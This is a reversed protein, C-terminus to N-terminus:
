VEMVGNCEPCKIFQIYEYAYGEEKILPVIRGEKEHEMFEFICGCYSCKKQICNNMKGHEIIKM